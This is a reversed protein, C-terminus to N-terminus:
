KELNELLAAVALISNEARMKPIASKIEQYEGEDNLTSSVLFAQDFFWEDREDVPHPITGCIKGEAFANKIQTAIEKPDRKLEKIRKAMEKQLPQLYLGDEYGARKLEPVFSALPLLEDNTQNSFHEERITLGLGELVRKKVYGEFDPNIPETAESFVRATEDFLIKRLADKREDTYYYALKDQLWDPIISFALTYLKQTQTGYISDAADLLSVSPPSIIGNEKWRALGPPLPRTYREAQEWTQVETNGLIPFDSFTDKEFRDGFEGVIHWQFMATLLGEKYLAFESAEQQYKTKPASEAEFLILGIPAHDTVDEETYIFEGSGILKKQTGGSRANSILYAAADDAVSHYEIYKNAKHLLLRGIDSYNQIKKIEEFLEKPSLQAYRSELETLKTQFDEPTKIESIGEEKAFTQFEERKQEIAILRKKEVDMKEQISQKVSGFPQIVSDKKGGRLAESEEDLLFRLVSSTIEQPSNKKHHIAPLRDSSGFFFIKRKKKEHLDTKGTADSREYKSM